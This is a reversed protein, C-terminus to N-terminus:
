HEAESIDSGGAVVPISVSNCIVSYRKFQKKRPLKLILELRNVETIGARREEFTCGPLCFWVFVLRPCAV